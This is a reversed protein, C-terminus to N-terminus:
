LRSDVLKVGNKLKIECVHKREFREPLCVLAISSVNGNRQIWSNPQWPLPMAWKCRSCVANVSPKRTTWTQSTRYPIPYLVVV